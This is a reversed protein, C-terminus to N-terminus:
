VIVTKFIEDNEIHELCDSAIIVDFTKNLEICQADMVSTNGLGNKKCNKIAISSIDIGFLNDPEFGINILEKLLLGSSCGIDLINIHKPQSKLLQIIYKRRAKFWFHNKEIQHYKEEFEKEM